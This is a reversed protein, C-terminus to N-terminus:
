FTPFRIIIHKDNVLGFHVKILYVRRRRTSFAAFTTM